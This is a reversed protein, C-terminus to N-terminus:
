INPEEQSLEAQIEQFVAVISEHVENLDTLPCGISKIQLMCNSLSVQGLLFHENRSMFELQTNRCLRLFFDIVTISKVM